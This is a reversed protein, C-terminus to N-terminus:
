KCKSVSVSSPKGTCSFLNQYGINHTTLTMHTLIFLLLSLRWSTTFTSRTPLQFNLQVERIAEMASKKRTAIEKMTHPSKLPVIIM